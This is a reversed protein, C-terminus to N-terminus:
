EWKYFLHPTCPVVHDGLRPSCTGDTDEDGGLQSPEGPAPARGGSEGPDHSEV